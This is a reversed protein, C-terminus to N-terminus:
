TRKTCSKVKIDELDKIRYIMGDEKNILHRDGIPETFCHDDSSIRKGNIWMGNWELVILNRQILICQVDYDGVVQIKTDKVGSQDQIHYTDDKSWLTVLGDEHEEMIGLFEYGELREIIGPSRYRSLPFFKIGIQAESYMYRKDEYCWIDPVEYYNYELEISDVVAVPDLQIRHSICRPIRLEVIEVEQDKVSVIVGSVPLEVPDLQRQTEIDFSHLTTGETWYVKSDKLIYQSHLDDVIPIKCVEQVKLSSM